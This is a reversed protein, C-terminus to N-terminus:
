AVTMVTGDPAVRRVRNNFIDLLFLNGDDDLVLPGILGFTAGLAPGGDGSFGETYGDPNGAITAVTGTKPIRRVRRNGSEAVFLTGDPDVAVGGPSSLDTALANRGDDMATSGGTGAVTSVIGDAGVQRIRNNATDAILVAGDPEVVLQAIGDFQAATAPGGDGTFGAVTSGAFVAVSGDAELRLIHSPKAVLISGSPLVALASNSLDPEDSVVTSILGDPTVRRISTGSTVLLSGDAEVALSGPSTLMARIAPRGDGADGSEGTGAVTQIGGDAGVSVVRHHGTDAILITGEAGVALGRPDDLRAPGTAPRAEENVGETTTVGVGASGGDRSMVLAALGAAVVAVVAAVVIGIRGPRSPPSKSATSESTTRDNANPRSAISGLREAVEAASAPREFPDKAMASEILECLEAPVGNPRLDPIPKTAIRLYTAALMEDPGPRFAPVGALLTFLTSGLSYVDSAVTATAGDLIEPAAHAMSAMVGGSTTTTSDGSIRAIGFDTLIPEGYDSLLVNAPKLDRHLIGAQHAAEIAGALKIGIGVVEPWPRPLGDAPALSGRGHFAMVIYPVGAGTLGVRYVVAINPHGALAGMARGERAFRERSPEDLTAALVKVAVTRNLTSERARYVIGYGGRGIEVFDELGDIDLADRLPRGGLETADDSM